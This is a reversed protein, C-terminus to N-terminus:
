DEKYFAIRTNREPYNVELSYGHRKDNDMFGISLSNTNEHYTRILGKKRDHRFNGRYIDRDESFMLGEGERWGAVYKGTYFLNYKHYYEGSEYFLGDKFGGVYYEKNAEFYK